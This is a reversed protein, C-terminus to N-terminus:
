KDPNKSDEPGNIPAVSSLIASYKCLTLSGTRTYTQMMRTGALTVNNIARGRHPGM